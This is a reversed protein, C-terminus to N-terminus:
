GGLKKANECKKQAEGAAVLINKLYRNEGYLTELFEANAIIVSLQGRLNGAKRDSMIERASETPTDSRDPASLDTEKETAIRSSPTNSTRNGSRLFQSIMIGGMHLLFFTGASM